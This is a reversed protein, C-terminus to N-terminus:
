SPEDETMLEIARETCFLETRLEGLRSEASETNASKLGAAIKRDTELKKRLFELLIQNKGHILCYGYKYYIEEDTAINGSVGGTDDAGNEEAEAARSGKVAADSRCDINMVVYYKGSDKVMVEDAIRWGKSAAFRRVHELDSQPQLILQKAGAAVASGKELIDTMLMGGMGAIIITDAEGPAVTSLGDGLRLEVLNGVGWKEINGRAIDCPGTRVDSAIVRDAIGNVALYISVFAHDCGIDCVRAHPSVMDAVTKMRLSLEIDKM